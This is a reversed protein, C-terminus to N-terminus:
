QPRLKLPDLDAVEHGRRRYANILNQVDSAKSAANNIPINKEKSRFTSNKFKDKIAEHSVDIQGNQISDFYKKWELSLSSPDRLYEEYMLDLYESNGGYKFSEKFKEGISKSM